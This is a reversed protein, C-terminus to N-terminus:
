IAKNNTKVLIKKPYTSSSTSGFSPSSSTIPKIIQPICIKETGLNNNKKKLYHMHLELKESCKYAPHSSFLSSLFVSFYMSQSNALSVFGIHTLKNRTSNARNYTTTADMIMCIYYINPQSFFFSFFFYSGNAVECKKPSYNQASM